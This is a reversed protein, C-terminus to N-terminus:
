ELSFVPVEHQLMSGLSFVLNSSSYQHSADATLSSCDLTRGFVSFSPSRLCHSYNPWCVKYLVTKGENIQQPCLCALTLCKNFERNRRTGHYTRPHRKLGCGLWVNTHKVGISKTHEWAKIKWIEQTWHQQNHCSQIVYPASPTNWLEKCKDSVELRCSLRSGLSRTNQAQCVATVHDM